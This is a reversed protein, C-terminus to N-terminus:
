STSIVKADGGWPNSAPNFDEVHMPWDGFDFLAVGCRPGKEAHIVVGIRTSDCACFVCYCRWGPMDKKPTCPGVRVVDGTKITM